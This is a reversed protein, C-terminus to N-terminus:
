VFREFREKTAKCIPCTQPPEERACLYGCVRCRWVPLPLSSIREIVEGKQAEQAAQAKQAREEKSLRREPIPNKLDEESAGPSVYLCCYCRSYQALDLDRYDCPCIIDLDEEKSGSALRCPCNPYGYRRENVLLSRVLELTLDMDPNLHYGAKEAEDKLKKYYEEVEDPSPESM